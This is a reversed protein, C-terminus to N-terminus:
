IMSHHVPAHEEATERKPREGRREGGSGLLRVPYAADAKEM